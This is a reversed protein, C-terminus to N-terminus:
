CYEQPTPHLPFELDQARTVMLNARLVVSQMLWRRVLKYCARHHPQQTYRSAALGRCAHTTGAERPASKRLLPQAVRIIEASERERVAM